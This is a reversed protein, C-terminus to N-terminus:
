FEIQYKQTMERRVRSTEESVQRMIERVSTSGQAREQTRIARRTAEVGKMADQQSQYPSAEFLALTRRANGTTSYVGSTVTSSRAGSRIGVGKIAEVCDRLQNVTNFGYDVLDPDVQLTPLRDIRNAYKEFWKGITYYSKAGRERKLDRLHEEIAQFYQQSAYADVEGPSSEGDNGEAPADVGSTDIELFSLIRKLGSDTLEGSIRFRQPAVEVEWDYFEEISTGAHELIELLMPKAIPAIVDISRSFDVKLSGYARDTFRIGLTVGEVGSLADAAQDKDVGKEVLVISGEMAERINQRGLAGGLDLALVLETGVRDAYSTAKALYPSLSSSTRSKIQRIWRSVAQRNSPSMVGFVYPEFKIIYSDRPTGVAELDGIQDRSGRVLRAVASMPLDSGMRMVAAEWIPTLHELDMEASLVFQQAEPPLKLPATAYNEEYRQRWGEKQAIPSAFLQSANLTIVMNANDPVRELLPAFDSQAALPNASFLLLVSCAAVPLLSPRM